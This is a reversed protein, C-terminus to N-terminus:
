RARAITSCAARTPGSRLGLERACEDIQACMAAMTDAPLGVPERALLEAVRERAGPRRSRRRGDRRRRRRAAAAAGAGAAARGRLRPAVLESRLYRRTHRSALFGKGGLVTDVMAEVDLARDDYPRASLAYFVDGLIDDDIVLAELSSSAGAAVDGVGSLFRPRALMGLVANLAHEAGFQADAM